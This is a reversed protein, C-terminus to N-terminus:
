PTSAYTYSKLGVVGIVSRINVMARIEAPAATASVIFLVALRQM